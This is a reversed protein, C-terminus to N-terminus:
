FQLRPTGAVMGKLIASAKQSGSTPEQELSGLELTNHERTPQDEMDEENDPNLSSDEDISPTSREAASDAQSRPTDYGKLNDLFSTTYVMRTKCEALYRELHSQTAPDLKSMANNLREWERLQDQHRKVVLQIERYLKTALGFHEYLTPCDVLYPGEPFDRAITLADKLDPTMEISMDKFEPHHIDIYDEDLPTAGLTKDERGM